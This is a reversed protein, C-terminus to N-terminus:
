RGERERELVHRPVDAPAEPHDSDIWIRAECVDCYCWVSNGTWVPARCERCVVRRLAADSEDTAGSGSASHGDRRSYPTDGTMPM